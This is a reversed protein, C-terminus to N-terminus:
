QDVFHQADAFHASTIGRGDFKRFTPAYADQVFEAENIGLGGKTIDNGPDVREFMRTLVDWGAAEWTSTTNGTTFAIPVWIVNPDYTRHVEVGYLGTAATFCSSRIARPCPSSAATLM